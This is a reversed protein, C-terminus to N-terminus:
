KVLPSIYRRLLSVYSRLRPGLKSECIMGKIIQHIELYLSLKDQEQVSIRAHLLNNTKTVNGTNLDMKDMRSLLVILASQLDISTGESSSESLAATHTM